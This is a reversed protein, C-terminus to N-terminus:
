LCNEVGSCFPDESPNGGWVRLIEYPGGSLGVGHKLCLARLDSVFVDFNPLRVAVFDSPKDPAFVVEVKGRVTSEVVVSGDLRLPVPFYTVDGTKTNALIVNKMEVGDVYVRRFGRGDDCTHIHESM